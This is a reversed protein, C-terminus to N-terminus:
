GRKVPLQALRDGMQRLVSLNVYVSSRGNYDFPNDLDRILLLLYFFSTFLLTSVTLNESFHKAGILLLAVM